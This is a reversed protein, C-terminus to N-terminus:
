LARTNCESPPQPMCVNCKQSAATKIYESMSHTTIYELMGQTTIYELM